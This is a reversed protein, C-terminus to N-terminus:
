PTRRSATSDGPLGVVHAQVDRLVLAPIPSEYELTTLANLLDEKSLVGKSILAEAITTTLVFNATAIKDQETM